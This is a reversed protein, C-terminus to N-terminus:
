AQVLGPGEGHGGGAGGGRGDGLGPGQGGPQGEGVLAVAGGETPSGSPWPCAVVRVIVAALPPVGFAVWVRVTMTPWAGAM